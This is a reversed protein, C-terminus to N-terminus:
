EMGQLVEIVLDWLYGSAADSGSGTVACNITNRIALSGSPYNGCSHECDGECQSPRSDPITIPGPEVAGFVITLVQLMSGMTSM